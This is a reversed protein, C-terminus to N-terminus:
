TPGGACLVGMMASAMACAGSPKTQPATLGVANSAEDAVPRDRIIREDDREAFGLGMDEFIRIALRKDVEADRRCQRQHRCEEERGDNLALRKELTQIRTERRQVSMKIRSEAMHRLADRHIVAIMPQHRPVVSEDLQVSKRGFEHPESPRELLQEVM